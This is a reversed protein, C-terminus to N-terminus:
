GGTIALGFTTMSIRIKTMKKTVLIQNEVLSGVWNEKSAHRNPTQGDFVYEQIQLKTAKPEEQKHKKEMNKKKMQGKTSGKKVQVLQKGQEIKQRKPMNAMDVEETDM